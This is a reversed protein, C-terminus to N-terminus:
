AAGGKARGGAPTPPHYSASWALIQEGILLLILAYLLPLFLNYGAEEVEYQFEDAAAYEFELPALSGALDERSVAKLDGETSDVNYAFLKEDWTGDKRSLRARYVGSADTEPLSVVLKETEEDMAADVSASPAADNPSLFRVQPQYQGPDFVLDLPTGVQRSSAGAPQNALYAQLELMGIVFSPNKAWDNWAPSASTMLAIVRGKGYTREIALPAGGRLRALVQVTSDEPAKWGKPIAYYEGVTVSDLFKFRDDALVRFAPHNEDLIEIDPSKELHDVRLITPTTVPVPFFGDGDRYLQDNVFKTRWRPGLFVAVGGGGRLYEELARVASEDLRDINMLYISHFEDLANLSLFRPQEIRPDIGTRAKEESELAVNLFFAESGGPDGDILLVPLGSPLDLVEYRFNDAAVPDSELKAVIQHQGEKEFSVQFRKKVAKQPPLHPVIEASRPKGDQQLGVAVDKLPADGFNRVTVEMFMSVGAARIGPAPALSTIALNPRTTQVCDVLFLRAGTEKLESLQKKLDQPKEWQRQRFDTVLYVVRRDGEAEGLLQGIAQLAPLPGAASESPLLPGVLERCRAPFDQDVTEELLDPQTGSAARAVQSFRLLTFSQPTPQNASAEALRHVVQKAKDFASGDAWRDSMSFSDDLLVIHHTKSGGFLRGLENYVKPHPVLFVIAAVAAMRMALLLLQKLLVWTRNKKQSLLLFEMAAWEVRRHRMMNILHILIPVGILGAALLGGIWAGPYLFSSM